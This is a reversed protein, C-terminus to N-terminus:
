VNKLGKLTTIIEDIQKTSLNFWEGMVRHKEYKKHLLFEIEKSNKLMKSYIEIIKNPNGTQLNKIRKETTDTTIGIKISTGDSLLYLLNSKTKKRVKIYHNKCYEIFDPPCEYAIGTQGRATFSSKKFDFRDINRKILNMLTSHKKIGILLQLEKSNMYKKTIIKSM